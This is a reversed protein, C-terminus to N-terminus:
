LSPFERKPFFITGTSPPVIRALLSCAVANSLLKRYRPDEPRNSIRKGLLAADFPQMQRHQPPDGWVIRARPGREGTRFKLIKVATNKSLFEGLAHNRHRRVGVM